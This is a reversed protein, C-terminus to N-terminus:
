RVVDEITARIKELVSKKKYPSLDENSEKALQQFLEKQKDTLHTPTMVAVRCYQDGFGGSGDPMGKKRLRFVKHSQTGPPIQLTQEGHLSPAKVESGLAAQSFTIPLDLFIDRGERVFVEHDKVEFNVYLDGRVAGSEGASPPEGEGRLRMSMGSDVGPPIEFDVDVKKPALGVGGCDGCPSEIMEGTGRCADCTTQVSFFGRTLRVQGAGGCRACRSKGTGPKCGSGECSECPERREFTIKATKGSFAEELTMPYRIRIDRGRAPGRRGGGGFGGGFFASFLDGFIDQMEGAHHFDSWQFGGPSFQTKVGEHGFRDYRSRKEADSLVEYAEAAEKFKEEAAETDTPNRDPHYKLAVKRYAKKVEEATATKAIGLVEYYDRKSM